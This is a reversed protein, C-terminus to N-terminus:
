REITLRKELYTRDGNLFHIRHAGVALRGLQVEKHFPTIGGLCMGEKVNALTTVEHLSPGVHEVKTGKLSYCTNFFLGNVVVFTESSSDFGSPVYVDSINVVMERTNAFAASALFMVTASAVILFKM